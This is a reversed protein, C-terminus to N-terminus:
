FRRYCNIWPERGHYSLDPLGTSRYDSQQMPESLSLVSHAKRFAILQCVYDRLKQASKKKSFNVWGVENDQCYPNNNGMASNAVEDGSLIQPVGQSLLLIALATRMNCYRIRQIMRNNTPGEQGFNFSCNYNSGDRNEEGNAENHKEGYTFVDMLTFGNNNSIFNVSSQTLIDDDLNTLEYNIAKGYLAFIVIILIILFSINTSFFRKIYSFM